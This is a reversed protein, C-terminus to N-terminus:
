VGDRSLITTRDSYLVDLRLQIFNCNSIERATGLPLVISLLKAAVGFVIVVVVVVVVVVIVELVVLSVVVVVTITESEALNAIVVLQLADGPPLQLTIATYHLETHPTSNVGLSHRFSIM